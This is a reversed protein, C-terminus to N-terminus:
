GTGHRRTFRRAIPLPREGDQSRPRVLFAVGDVFLLCAGTTRAYPAARLTSYGPGAMEVAATAVALESQM